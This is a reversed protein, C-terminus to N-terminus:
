IWRRGMRSVGKRAEGCCPHDEPVRGVKTTGVGKHGDVGERLEVIHRGLKSGHVSGGGAGDECVDDGFGKCADAYKVEQM